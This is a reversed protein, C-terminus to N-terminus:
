SVFMRPARQIDISFHTSFICAFPVSVMSVMSFASISGFLNAISVALPTRQVILRVPMVPYSAFYKEVLVFLITSVVGSALLGCILPDSWPMEESTKLNFALLPTGVATVLTLSGLFDIRRLKDALSRSQVEDPLVINVKVAVLIISFVLIPAKYMHSQDM